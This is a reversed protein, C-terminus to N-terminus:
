SYLRPRVPGHSGRELTELAHHLSAPREEASANATPPQFAAATMRDALSPMLNAESTAHVCATLPATLRQSIGTPPKAARSNVGM